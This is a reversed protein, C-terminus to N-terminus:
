RKGLLLFILPLRYKVNNVDAADMRLTELLHSLYTETMEYSEYRDALSWILYSYTMRWGLYGRPFRDHPTLLDEGSWDRYDTLESFRGIHTEWVNVPKSSPDIKLSKFTEELNQIWNLEGDIAECIQKHLIFDKKQCKRSCYRVVRCKSCLKLDPVNSKHCTVCFKSNQLSM